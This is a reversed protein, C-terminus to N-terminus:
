IERRRGFGRFNAEARDSFRGYKISQKRRRRRRRGERGDEEEITKSV